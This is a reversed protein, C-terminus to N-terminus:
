SGVLQRHLMKQFVGKTTSLQHYKGQQIIEGNELVVVQDADRITSLRHAIVIITLKGKIREIAELINTENETDLSSTAEDLVLVSPKRLIARALVIRQREGGSLKIGGRDGGIITDLGDPLKNVFEAASAFELAEMLAEDRANPAVILLNERITTNFLFPDQSVYSLSSRLAIIRTSSLSQGDVKIEGDEPLNLGGMLLDILTSKGAGSKGVIATIKNAPIFLNINKLAFEPKERDYRFSANECTIGEVIELPAVSPNFDEQFEKTESTQKQLGQVIQLSPLSMAIQEMSNQMGAVRPWLRSFILLILMLQAAQAAFLQIAVYVFVAIFVASAIKYYAQSTTKVRTFDVHRDQMQKTISRYWEMRPEELSNSKIDKMGNIQDTIGALYSKGLEVNKKGLHLSRRLFKFNILMLFLGCILVFSTIAPSLWFALGIQMLTIIFSAILNLFSQTGANTKSIEMTLIHILDSKRNKLFFGWNSKLLSQYTNIQLYRLFGQQIESNRITIHRQLLNQGIVIAVFISLIIVLGMSVSFSDLFQFVEMFPIEKANIEIIGSMSIMPILLLIGIGNLLGIGMMALINFYLVAGSYEHIQKLFYVVHQM